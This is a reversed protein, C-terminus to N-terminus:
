GPFLFTVTFRLGVGDPGNDPSEAWYRLGVGLSVPRGDIRVLKSVLANVPASWDDSVWNYSNEVNVAFTWADATSYALFPQVLSVDVDNRAADGAFSWIHHALLGATWPGEQRVVVATPGAGWKETSLLPESGTPLLFIPGAGWLIGHAGPQKPSAFFSQQADGLGVQRGSRRAVDQQWVFPLITRSVVQWDAGLSIPVVPQLKVSIQKGRAPGYGSDYNTQFPVSILPAVPNALQRVLGADQAVAESVPCVLALCALAWRWVVRM